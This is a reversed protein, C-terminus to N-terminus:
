KESWSVGLKEWGMKLREGEERDREIQLNSGCFPCYKWDDRVHAGCYPCYQFKRGLKVVTIPYSPYWVWVGSGATSSDWLGSM